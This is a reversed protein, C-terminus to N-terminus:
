PLVCNGPCPARVVHSISPKGSFVEAAAAATPGGQLLLLEGKIRLMEAILWREETRESHDIAEEITTLGDAIQAAPGLAEAVLLKVLRLVASQAEGLEAFGARLLGLGSGTDGRKIVLAGQYCRSYARWPALAQRTSHELLMGIYHEAAVLDGVLLAIPCAALALALYLSLADDAAQAEAVSMEATRVAQDSFGQFWLVRALFARTSVRFDTQFRIVSPRHDALGYRAPGEELYRRASPQDGLHHQAAGIMREGFLQDQRDPRSEAVACFNQALKLATGLQGRTIHFSWLGWLSRLQYEADGLGEAMELAKTWAAEYEATGGRTYTLAEGMAAYLQMERRPHRNAETELAALAREVRGRCEDVRSLLMWLPIAAVTLAVGLTADGDASFAWDLAARLNDIRWGFEGIWEATSRVEWEAEAREFLDRYYEAHRRAIREREGGENLKELAYARTTDLLRYRAIGNWVDSVVLSKAALSSLEDVIRAGHDRPRAAASIAGLTFPGVFIGLSRLLLREPEPLLEYSWDLTARLTQHRPLATRRGGTLLSLRDGLRSAVEDIGLASVRAAALEIALPIGDLQRCILALM